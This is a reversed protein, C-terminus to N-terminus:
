EEEGETSWYTNNLKFNYCDEDFPYTESTWVAPENFYYEGSGYLLFKPKIHLTLATNQSVAINLNIWDLETQEKNFLRVYLGAPGVESAPTVDMDDTDTADPTYYLKGLDLYNITGKFTYPSYYTIKVATIVTGPNELLMDGGINGALDGGEAEAIDITTEGSWVSVYTGSNDYEVSIDTITIDWRDPDASVAVINYALTIGCFFFLPIVSFFLLLLKSFWINTKKM